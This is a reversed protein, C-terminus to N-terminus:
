FYVNTLGIEGIGIGGYDTKVPSIPDSIYGLMNDLQNKAQNPNSEGPLPQNSIGYGSKVGSLDATNDQELQQQAPNNGTGTTNTTNKTSFGNNWPEPYGDVKIYFRGQGHNFMSEIDGKDRQRAHKLNVTFEVSTPFDDPGLTSGFKMSSSTCILNGIMMIPNMPNGVTLHWEGIPEGTILPKLSVINKQIGDFSRLEEFAYAWAYNKIASTNNKNALANVDMNTIRKFLSGLLNTVEDTLKNKDTVVKGEATTTTVSGAQNLMNEWDQSLGEVVNKGGKYVSELGQIATQFPGYSKLNKLEDVIQQFDINTEGSAIRQIMDQLTPPMPFETPTKMFRYDGGYFNADNYTLALMNSIIDMMVMKSNYSDVQSMDYSFKLSITDGSWMFGRERVHTQNIVNIDGYVRYAWGHKYPDQEPSMAVVFDKLTSNEDIGEVKGSKKASEFQNYLMWVGFVSSVANDKETTNSALDSVNIGGGLLKFPNGFKRMDLGIFPNNDSTFNNSDNIKPNATDANLSKWNLGWTFGMLSVLTNDGGEGFYTLARASDSTLFEDDSEGGTSNPLMAQLLKDKGAIAGSDLCPAKFRRLTILRNNPIKGYNKCYAFDKWEYKLNGLTPPLGKRTTNDIQRVNDKATFASVNTEEIGSLYSSKYAINTDRVWNDDKDKVLSSKGLDGEVDPTKIPTKNVKGTDQISQSWEIINKATPKKYMELDSHLGIYNKDQFTNVIGTGGDNALYNGGFSCWAYENMLSKAGWKPSNKLHPNSGMKSEKFPNAKDVSPNNDSPITSSFGNGNTNTVSRVKDVVTDFFGM